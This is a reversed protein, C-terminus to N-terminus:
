TRVYGYLGIGACTPIPKEKCTEQSIILLHVMWYFCELWIGLPTVEANSIQVARQCAQMAEELADIEVPCFIPHETDAIENIAARVRKTTETQQALIPEM